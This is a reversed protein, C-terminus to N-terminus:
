NRYARQSMTSTRLLFAVDMKDLMDLHGRIDGSALEFILYDVKNLPNRRDAISGGDIAKVIRSLHSTKQCLDVEFVYATTM